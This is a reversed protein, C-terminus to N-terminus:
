FDPEEEITYTPESYDRSKIGPLAEQYITNGEFYYAPATIDRGLGGPLTQYIQGDNDLVMEPQTFDKWQTGPFNQRIVTRGFTNNSLTILLLAFAIKKM